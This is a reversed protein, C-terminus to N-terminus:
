KGEGKTPEEKEKKTQATYKEVAKATEEAIALAKEVVEKPNNINSQNCVIVGQLISPFYAELFKQNM